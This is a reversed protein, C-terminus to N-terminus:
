KFTFERLKKLFAKLKERSTYGVMGLPAAMCGISLPIAMAFELPSPDPVRGGEPVSRLYSYEVSDFLIPVEQFPDELYLSFEYEGGQPFEYELTFTSVETKDERTFYITNTQVGNRRILAYIESTYLPEIGSAFVYSGEVSIRIGKNIEQAFTTLAHTYNTDIRIPFSARLTIGEYISINGEIEPFNSTEAPVFIDSAGYTNNDLKELSRIGLQESEFRVTTYDGYDAVILNGFEVSLSFTDGLLVTSPYDMNMNLRSFKAIDCIYYFIRPDIREKETTRYFEHYEPCYLDQVLAQILEANFEIDLDLLESIKYAYYIQHMNTYDLHTELFHTLKPKSLSFADFAELCYAMYYTNEFLADLSPDFMPEFYLETSTEVLHRTIHTQFAAVDLGIDNFKGLGLFDNLLELVRIAYYSHEFSMYKIQMSPESNLLYAYPLFGGYYSAYGGATDLFQTRVVTSIIRTLDTESAFDDLKYLNQFISLLTFASRWSHYYNFATLHNRTGFSSYELPSSRLILAGESIEIADMNTLAYFRECGDSTSYFISQKLNSYIEELDFGLIENYLSLIEITDAVSTSHMYRNSLPSYGEVMRYLGIYEVIEEKEQPTLSSLEGLADLSRIIQFTDILEHYSLPTSTYWGGFCTRHSFLFSLVASRSVNTFDYIEALELGLASAVINSWNFLQYVHNTTHSFYGYEEHYLESLYTQFESVRISSLAGAGFIQLTKVAYYSSFITPETQLFTELSYFTDVGDNNFGFHFETEQLSNIFSIVESVETAYTDWNPLLVDLTKVAYYTNDLTAIKFETALGVHYPQGIFGSTLPQYCSWLFSIFQSVDVLALQDLLELSLLAYCNVELLTTLPYYKPYTVDFDTDLYRGAYRDFFYGESESYYSMIISVMETQNLTNLQDIADLSFLAFYLSQLNSEYLQPFYGKNNFQDRKIAILQEILDRNPDAATMPVKPEYEDLIPNLSPISNGQILHSFSIMMILVGLFLFLDGSRM